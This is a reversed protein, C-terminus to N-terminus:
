RRPAQEFRRVVGGRCLRQARPGQDRRYEGRQLNERAVQVAEIRELVLRRLDRRDLREPLGLLARREHEERDRVLLLPAVIEGDLDGLARGQNQAVIRFTFQLPQIVERGIVRRHRRHEVREPQHDPDPDAHERERPVAGPPQPAARLGRAPEQPGIGPESEGAPDRHEGALSLFKRGKRAAWLSRRPGSGPPYAAHTGCDTMGVADLPSACPANHCIVSNLNAVDQGRQLEYLESAQPARAGRGVNVYLTQAPTVLYSVGFKPLVNVFQDSRDAPRNYLCGGFGCPTGDAQANGVPLFNAYSYRVAEVRVGGSFLWQPNWYHNLDLYAALTRSDAAYDYHLGQPRIGAQAPPLNTVAAPQFEQQAGHAYEGDAGYIVTTDPSLSDRLKLLVGGSNVAGTEIPEGPLFHQTFSTWNHRVYPTIDLERDDALHLRWKQLLRLNESDRFAGPTPNSYRLAPNEYADLGYLYGATKQNLNTAEFLTERSVTSGDHDFRVTLKQQDYGSDARFGGDHAANANVRFGDTGNWNGASAKVRTYNNSGLEVSASSQPQSQPARTLVNVIGNLANSGYLVSGPGRVVEVAAAQETNIEFLANVNCFGAPQIPVSDELFLFAGCAGGGTLLPSRISVLSEQGSGETVWAGPVNYFIQAPHTEGILSLTAGNVLATNGPLIQLPTPAGSDTVVV